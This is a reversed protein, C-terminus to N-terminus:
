QKKGYRWERALRSPRQDLVQWVNQRAVADRDHNFTSSLKKGVSFFM